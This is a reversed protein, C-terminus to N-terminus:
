AGGQNPDEGTDGTPDDDFNIPPQVDITNGAIESGPLPLALKFTTTYSGDRIEHSVGRIMWAASSYAANCDGQSRIWSCTGTGGINFPNFVILSIYKNLLKYFNGFSPDGQVRLEAEMGQAWYTAHQHAMDYEQTKVTAQKNGYAEKRQRDVTTGGIAGTQITDGKEAGTKESPIPSFDRLAGGRGSGGATGGKTFTIGVYKINPSFSLVPSCNGANVLYTAVTDEQIVTSLEQDNRPKLTEMIVLEPPDAASNYVINFGKGDDSLQKKIWKYLVSLLNENYGTWVGSLGGAGMEGADDFYTLKTESGGQWKVFKINLNTKTAFVQKLAEEMTVKKSNDDSGIIGPVNVDHFAGMLDIGELMFKFLGNGQYTSSINMLTFTHQCSMTASDDSPDCSPNPGTDGAGPGGPCNQSVWGWYVTLVPNPSTSITYLKKIFEAFSGGDQDVIEINVGAGTSGGIQLSKVVAANNFNPSSQNGVTISAEGSSLGMRVFPALVAEDRAARPTKASYNNVCGSLFNCAM